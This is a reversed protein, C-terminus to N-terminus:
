ALMFETRHEELHEARTQLDLNSLADNLTNRDKHHVVMGRPIAGHSSEWIVIALPRWTNPDATKIFARQEDKHRFTRVRVTGVPLYNIPTQGPTFETAPSLHLGKINKNWPVFGTKFSGSNPGANAARQNGTMRRKCNEAICQKKGCTKRKRADSPFAQFSSGCISCVFFPCHRTPKPMGRYQYRRAAACPSFVVVPLPAPM